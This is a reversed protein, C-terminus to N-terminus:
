VSSGFLDARQYDELTIKNQAFLSTGGVTLMGAVLLLKWYIRKNIIDM